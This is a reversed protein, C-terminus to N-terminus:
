YKEICELFYGLTFLLFSILSFTFSLLEAICTCLSKESRANNITEFFNNLRNRFFCGTQTKTVSLLANRCRFPYISYMWSSGEKHIVYNINYVIRIWLLVSLSVVGFLLDIWYDFWFVNSSKSALDFFNARKPAEGSVMM